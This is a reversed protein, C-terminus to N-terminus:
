FIKKLQLFFMSFYLEFEFSFKELHCSDSMPGPDSDGDADPDMRLGLQPTSSDPTLVLKRYGTATPLMDGSSGAAGPHVSYQINQGGQSVRRAGSQAYTLIEDYSM